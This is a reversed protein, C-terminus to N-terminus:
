GVVDLHVPLGQSSLQIAIWLLCPPVPSAHSVCAGWIKTSWFVYSDHWMVVQWGLNESRGGDRARPWWRLFQWPSSEGLHLKLLSFDMYRDIIIAQNTTTRKKLIGFFAPLALHRRRARAMRLTQGAHHRWFERPLPLCRSFSSSNPWQFLEFDRRDYIVYYLWIRNKRLLSKINHEDSSSGKKGNCIKKM